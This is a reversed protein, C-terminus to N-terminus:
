IKLKKELEEIKSLMKKNMQYIRENTMDIANDIAQLSPKGKMDIPKGKMDFYYRRLLTGIKILGKHLSKQFFNKIQEGFYIDVKAINNNLSDNWEYLFDNFEKFRDECKDAIAREKDRFSYYLRRSRYIRKDLLLSIHEYAKRAEQIQYTIRKIKFQHEWNKQQIKASISNGIISTLIFGIILLMLPHEFTAGSLYGICLLILGIIIEILTHEFFASLKKMINEKRQSLKNLYYLVNVIIVM